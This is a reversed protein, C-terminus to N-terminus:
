YLIAHKPTETLTIIIFRANEHRISLRHVLSIQISQIFLEIYRSAQVGALIVNMWSRWTVVWKCVFVTFVLIYGDNVLVMCCGMCRVTYVPQATLM